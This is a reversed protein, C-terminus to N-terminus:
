RREVARQRYATFHHHRRPFSSHLPTRRSRHILIDNDRRRRHAKEDFIQCRRQANHNPVHRDNDRPTRTLSHTRLPYQLLTGPKAHLPCGMALQLTLITNTNRHSIRYSGGNFTGVDDQTTAGAGTFHGQAPAGGPMQSSQNSNLPPKEPTMSPQSDKRSGVFGASPPPEQYLEMPPKKEPTYSPTPTAAQPPPAFSARHGNSAYQQQMPPPPYGGSSPSPQSPPPPYSQTQPPPFGPSSPPPPFSQVQM